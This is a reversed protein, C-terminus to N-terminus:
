QTQSIAPPLVLRAGIFGVTAVTALSTAIILIISRTIQAYEPLFFSSVLAMTVVTLQVLLIVRRTLMQRRKKPLDQHHTIVPLVTETAQHVFREGTRVITRPLRFLVVATVGLMILTISGIAVLAAAPLETSGASHSVPVEPQTQIITFVGSDILPPLAILLVWTWQLLSATYGVGLLIRGGTHRLWTINM